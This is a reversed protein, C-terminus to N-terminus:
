GDARVAKIIRVVGLVNYVMIAAAATYFIETM